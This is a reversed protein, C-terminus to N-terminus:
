RPRGGAPTGAATAPAPAPPAFATVKGQDVRLAGASAEAATVPAERLRRWASDLAATLQERRPQGGCDALAAIVLRTGAYARWAAREGVGNAGGGAAEDGAVLGAATSERAFAESWEAPWIALDSPFVAGQLAPAAFAAAPADCWSARGLALAGTPAERLAATLRPLTSAPFPLYILEPRPGALGRLAAEADAADPRCPATAVLRGGAALLTRGFEACARAGAESDPYLVAARRRDLDTVALRALLQQERPAILEVPVVWRSFGRLDAADPSLVVLPMGWADAAV